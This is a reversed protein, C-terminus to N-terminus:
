VVHAKTRIFVWEALYVGLGFTFLVIGALYLRVGPDKRLSVDIRHRMGFGASQTEPAFDKLFIGYGSIWVPQNLCLVREYAQGDKIIKLHARPKLVRNTFTPLREGQYYLPHFDTFVVRVTTSPLTMSGGPVLTRTELVRAFLYSSLYGVLILILAYHMLHPALRYFLQSTGMQSGRALLAVLRDTTCVFTNVSLLAMLGLLIFFWATHMLNHRGYTDIWVALGVDNLPAFLPSRGRLCFYGWALDASLLLCLVVTLRVSRAQHWLTRFIRDM